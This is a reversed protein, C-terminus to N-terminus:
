GEGEKDPDNIRKGDLYLNVEFNKGEDGSQLKIKIEAIEKRLEHDDNAARRTAKYHDESYQSLDKLMIPNHDQYYVLELRKSYIKDKIIELGNDFFPNRERIRHWTTRRIEKKARFQEISVVIGEEVDKKFEDLLAYLQTAGWRKEGFASWHPTTGSKIDKKGKRVIKKKM